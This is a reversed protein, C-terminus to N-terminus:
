WVSFKCPISYVTICAKALKIVELTPLVGDFQRILTMVDVLSKESSTVTVKVQKDEMRCTFELCDVSCGCFFMCSMHPM